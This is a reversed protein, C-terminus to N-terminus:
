AEATAVDRTLLSVSVALVAAVVIGFLIGFVLSVIAGSVVATRVGWPTLKSNQEGARFPRRTTKWLLGVILVPM